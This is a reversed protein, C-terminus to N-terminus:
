GGGDASDCQGAVGCIEGASAGARDAWWRNGDCVVMADYVDGCRDDCRRLLRTLAAIRTFSGFAPFGPKSRGGFTAKMAGRSTLQITLSVMKGLTMTAPSEAEKVRLSSPWKQPLAGNRRVKALSVALVRTEVTGAQMM